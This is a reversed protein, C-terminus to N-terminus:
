RSIIIMVLILMMNTRRTWRVADVEKYRIKTLRGYVEIASFGLAQTKGCSGENLVLRISRFGEVQRTTNLKYTGIGPGNCNKSSDLSRCFSSNDTYTSNGIIKWKQPNEEDGLRIGYVSWKKAFCYNAGFNARITYSKPFLFRQSFTLQFWQYDELKATWRSANWLVTTIPDGAYNGNATPKVIELIKSPDNNNEKKIKSIIGNFESTLEM